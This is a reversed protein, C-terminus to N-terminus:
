VVYSGESARPRYRESPFKECGIYLPNFAHPATCQRFNLLKRPKHCFFRM